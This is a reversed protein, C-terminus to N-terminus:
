SKLWDEYKQGDPMTTGELSKAPGDLNENSIGRVGSLFARSLDVEFLEAESLDAGFLKAGSLDAGRLDAGSLDAGSLDAGRLDSQNLSAKILKAESLDAGDLVCTLLKASNLTALQLDAKSLDARVVTAGNLDAKSLKAKSLDAGDLIATSLKASILKASILKAESLDAGESLDAHILNAQSLDAWRLRASTLAARRLNARSLDAGSLIARSLDARSLDARSLKVESLDAGELVAKSLKIENLDARSLDAEVLSVVPQQREILGSESVVIRERNILDSDYLFRLVSSKREAMLRQLVTLTWARAVVSLNDGQQAKRLPHDKDTLLTGMQEFYNQLADDQTRENAQAQQQQLNRRSIYLNGVAALATLSGILGAAMVVFVNILDKRETATKPRIYSALLDWLWWSLGGVVAIAIGILVALILIRSRALWIVTSFVNALLRRAGAWTHIFADAIVVALIGGVVYGLNRWFRYVSLAKARWSRSVKDPEM